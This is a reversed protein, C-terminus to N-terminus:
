KHIEVENKEQTKDKEKKQSDDPTAAGPKAGPPASEGPQLKLKLETRMGRRVDIPEDFLLYGGKQVQLRHPGEPLWLYSPYGDLDRAEGVYRGDVWVDARNPKVNLDVAGYGAIMAANMDVGGPPYFGPYYPGWGWGWAPGYGFGFWPNYGYFGGRYVVVPGHGRGHADADSTAFLAVIALAGLTVATRRARKWDSM